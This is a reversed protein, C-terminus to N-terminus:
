DEWSINLLEAARIKYADRAEYEPDEGYLTHNLAFKVLDEVTQISQKYDNILKIRHNNLENKLEDISNFLDSEYVNYDTYHCTDSSLNKINVLRRIFKGNHNHVEYTVVGSYLNNDFGTGKFYVTDGINM